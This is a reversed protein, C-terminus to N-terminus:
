RARGAAPQRRRQRRRQTALYGGVVFEQRRQCKLKLWDTSRTGRHPADARKAILGELRAACAQQLLAGALDGGGEGLPLSLHLPGGDDQLQPQLWQRLLAQRAYLPADRLDHGEFYLLDFVFYEIPPGAASPAGSRRARATSPTRCRASTAAAAPAGPARRVVIEGDLWASGAQLSALAEALAPMRDTWDHGGRTILRPVGGEIRVLLRYGDFKTEYIWRGQRPVASALV